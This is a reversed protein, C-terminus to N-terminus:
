NVCEFVVFVRQLGGGGYFVYSDCAQPSTCVEMAQWFGNTCVLISTKDAACAHHADTCIRSGTQDVRCANAAGPSCPEGPLAFRIAVPGFGPSSPSKGLSDCSFSDQFSTGSTKCDLCPSFKTFNAGDCHHVGTHGYNCVWQGKTACSTQCIGEGNGIDPQCTREICAGTLECSEEYPDSSSCCASLVVLLAFRVATGALKLYRM